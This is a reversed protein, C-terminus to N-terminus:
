KSDSGNSGGEAAALVAVATALALALAAAAAATDATERERAKRQQANVTYLVLQNHRVAAVWSNALTCGARATCQENHQAHCAHEPTSTRVRVSLVCYVRMHAYTHTHYSGSSVGAPCRTQKV